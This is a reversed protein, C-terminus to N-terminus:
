NNEKTMKIIESSMGSHFYKEDTSESPILNPRSQNSNFYCSESTKEERCDSCSSKLYELAM